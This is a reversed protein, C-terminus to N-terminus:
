MLHVWLYPSLDLGRQKFYELQAEITRKSYRADKNKGSAAGYGPIVLIKM